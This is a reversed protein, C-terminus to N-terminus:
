AAPPLPPVGHREDWRRKAEAITIALEFHPPDVRNRFNGGWRLGCAPAHSGLRRLAEAETFSDPKKLIRLDRACGWNHFSNGFPAIPRWKEMLMPSQEPHSKALAKVYAAYDDDRYKLIRTTDALTRVGGFDATDFQIGDAEGLAKLAAIAATLEPDEGALTYSM